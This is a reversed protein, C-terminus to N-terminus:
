LEDCEGPDLCPAVDTGVILRDTLGERIRAPLVARSRNSTVEATGAHMPRTSTRMAPRCATVSTRPCAVSRTRKLWVPRRRTVAEAPPMRGCGASSGGEAHQRRDAHGRSRRARKRVELGCPAVRGRLGAGAGGAFRDRGRVEVAVTLGVERHCVRLAVGDGH